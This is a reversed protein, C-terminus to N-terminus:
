HAAQGAEVPAAKPPRGRKPPAPLKIAEAEVPAAEVEEVPEAHAEALATDDEGAPGSMHALDRQGDNWGTQWASRLKVDDTYPNEHNGGARGERYGMDYAGQMDAPLPAAAQSEAFKQDDVRTAVTVGDDFLGLQAGLPLGMFKCLTNLARTERDIDEVDRERLALYQDIALKDHGLKEGLSYLTKKKNNFIAKLGKAKADLEQWDRKAGALEGFMEKFRKETHPADFVEPAADEGGRRGRRAM